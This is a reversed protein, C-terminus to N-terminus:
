HKLYRQTLSVQAPMLPFVFQVAVLLNVTTQRHWILISCQCSLLLTALTIHCAKTKNVKCSTIMIDRSCSTMVPVPFPLWWSFVVRESLSRQGLYFRIVLALSKSFFGAWNIFQSDGWPSPQNFIIFFNILAHKASHLGLPVHTM